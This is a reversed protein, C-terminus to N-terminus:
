QNLILKILDKVNQTLKYNDLDKTEVLAFAQHEALRVENLNYTECGFNIQM